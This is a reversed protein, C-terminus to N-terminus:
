SYEYTILHLQNIPLLFQKYFLLIYINIHQVLMGLGLEQMSELGTNM